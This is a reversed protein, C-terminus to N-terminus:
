IGFITFVNTWQLESEVLWKRARGRRSVSDWGVLGGARVKMLSVWCFRLM